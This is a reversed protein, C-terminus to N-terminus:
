IRRVVDDDRDILLKGEDQLKDIRGNVDGVQEEVIGEFVGPSEVNEAIELIKSDDESVGSEMAWVDFDHTSDLVGLQNLSEKVLTFAIEVDEEMVEKRLNLRAHSRALREIAGRVRHTVRVNGSNGDGESLEEYSKWIKREINEDISPDYEDRAYDVYKSIWEKSETEEVEYEKKEEWSLQEYEVIFILDMRSFFSTHFEIQEDLPQSKNIRGNSPNCAMLCNTEAKLQTSIIKDVSIKQNSLVNNLSKQQNETMKDVEDITAIGKNAKALAGASVQYQGSEFDEVQEIGATLGVQTVSEGSVSKSIPSVEEVWELLDSKGGSPDGALLIHSTDRDEMGSFEGTFMQLILSKRIDDYQQGVLEPAVNPSLYDLMDKNNAVREFEEVEEESIEMDMEDEKEVGAAYLVLDSYASEKDARVVVANLRIRDGAEVRNCFNSDLIVRVEDPNDAKTHLQQLMVERRMETESLDSVMDWNNKNDCDSNRCQNPEKIDNGVLDQEVNQIQNECVPCRFKVQHKYERRKSVNQVQGEVTIVEGIDGAGINSIEKTKWDGVLEPMDDYVKQLLDLYRFPKKIVEQIIEQEIEDDIFDFSPEQKRDFQAAFILEKGASYEMQHYYGWNTREESM